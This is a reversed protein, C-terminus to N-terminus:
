AVLIVLDFTCQFLKFFHERLFNSLRYLLKVSTSESASVLAEKDVDEVGIEVL